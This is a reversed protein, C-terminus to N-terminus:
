VENVTTALYDMLDRSGLHVPRVLYVLATRALCGQLVKSERSVFYFFKKILIKLKILQKGTAWASWTPWSRRASWDTGPRWDTWYSRSFFLNQGNYCFCFNYFM